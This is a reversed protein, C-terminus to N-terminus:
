RAHGTMAASRYQRPGVGQNSQFFRTFNSQSSFGLEAAIAGINAERCNLADVAHQMRLANWYVHPTMGYCGRFMSFLHARSLGFRSGIDSLDERGDLHERMYAICRTIRRDSSSKVSGDTVVTGGIEDLVELIAQKCDDNSLESLMLREAFQKAKARLSQSVSHSPTAFRAGSLRGSLQAAMWSPHVYLALIVLPERPKSVCCIHPEWSNVLVAEGDSIPVAAGDVIFHADGGGIKLLVHAEAHAHRVLSQSMDLIALRGFNGHKVRIANSM